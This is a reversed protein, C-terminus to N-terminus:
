DFLLKAAARCPSVTFPLPSYNEPSTRSPQGFTDFKGDMPQVFAPWHRPKFYNLYRPLQRGGHFNYSEAYIVRSSAILGIPAFSLFLSLSSHIAMLTALSHNPRLPFRAVVSRRGGRLNEDSLIAASVM